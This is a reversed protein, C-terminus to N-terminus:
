LDPSHLVVPVARLDHRDAVVLFDMDIVTRHLARGGALQPFARASEMDWWAAPPTEWPSPPGCPPAEGHRAKPWTAEAECLTDTSGVTHATNQPPSHELVPAVRVM